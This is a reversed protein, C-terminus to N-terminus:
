ENSESSSIDDFTLQIGQENQLADITEQLKAIGESSAMDPLPPLEELKQIGMTRLFLDTTGYLTPRGPAELRGKPEILGKESLSSVTYSSDVGRVRSIYAMTAPQYYAVIALTELASQSLSPPKRQELIKTVIQNYEPATCIQLKDNIKLVRLAHDNRLYMAALEDAASLVEDESIKLVLSIRAVPVPEGAAFLIAELSSFIDVM